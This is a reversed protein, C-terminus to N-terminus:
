SEELVAPRTNSGDKPIQETLMGHVIMREANSFQPHCTTLTILQQWTPDPTQDTEQWLDTGPIASITSVDGPTTIYRGAVNAYAGTTVMEQQEPSLCSADARRQEGTSDIPLIRYVNWSTQTEVVIADCTHLNGLDNFPAGKGVRHGAVAFNGPVGPMPTNTYHGPGIELDADEVGEVIAFQFDSGFSPIYMRAFADGIEPTIKQRPNVRQQWQEDLKEDAQAQMKGSEINTWYSEYFAFLFVIVGLTLLLEGLVQLFDPRRRTATEGTPAARKPGSDPASDTM